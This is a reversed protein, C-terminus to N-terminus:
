QLYYVIFLFNDRPSDNYQPSDGRLIPICAMDFQNFSINAVRESSVALIYIHVIYLFIIGYLDVTLPGQSIEEKWMPIDVPIVM